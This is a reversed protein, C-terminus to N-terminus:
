YLFAQEILLIMIVDTSAAQQQGVASARSPRMPLSYMIIISETFLANTMVPPTPISAALVKGDGLRLLQVECPAIGKRNAILVWIRHTFVPLSM